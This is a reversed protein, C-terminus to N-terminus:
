RLQGFKEELYYVPYIRPMRMGGPYGTHGKKWGHMIMWIQGDNDTFFEQGGPGVTDNYSKIWSSSVTQERHNIIKQTLQM